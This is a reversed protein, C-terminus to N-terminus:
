FRQLTFFDLVDFTIFVRKPSGIGRNLPKVTERNLAYGFGCKGNAIARAARM